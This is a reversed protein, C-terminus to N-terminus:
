GPHMGKDRIVATAEPRLLYAMFARAEEPASTNAAIASDYVVERQLEAPVPGVVALRPDILVNLLFLGLEAEGSAVAEVIQIPTPQERTRAAMKGVIGLLV